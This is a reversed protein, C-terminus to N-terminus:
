QLAQDSSATPPNGPSPKIFEFIRLTTAPIAAAEATGNGVFFIGALADCENDTKGGRSKRIRNCANDAIV